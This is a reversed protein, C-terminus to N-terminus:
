RNVNFESNSRHAFCAFSRRYSDFHININSAWIALTEVAPYEIVVVHTSELLNNVVGVRVRLYHRQGTGYM